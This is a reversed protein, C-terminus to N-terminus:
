SLRLFLYSYIFPITIFLIDFRDLIGGHGPLIKGSDKVGAQRKFMSEVLDGFTGIICIIAGLIMWDFFELPTNALKYLVISAIQVAVVGGFFGEWSKKPSIREFLRRKGFKIGVLYAFTDNCWALIFVSLLLMPIFRNPLLLPNVIFNTLGMPIVIYIVGLITYAINTFPNDKKRFLEVIFITFCLLLSIIISYKTELQFAKLIFWSYTALALLYGPITSPSIKSIKTNNYFEYLAILAILGFFVALIIPDFVIALIVGLVYVAGTITRITINKM